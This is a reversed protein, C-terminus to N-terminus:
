ELYRLQGAQEQKLRRTRAAAIRHQESDYRLHCRQCLAKLNSEDNNTTDHDLHAVTLVVKVKYFDDEESPLVVCWDDWLEPKAKDRGIWKGHPAGCNECRGGARDFRIRRSIEEWDDPYKSRDMPMTIVGMRATKCHGRYKTRIGNTNLGSRWRQVFALFYM